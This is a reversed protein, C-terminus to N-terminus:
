KQLHGDIMITVNATGTGDSRICSITSQVSPLHLSVFQSAAYLERGHSEGQSFLVVPVIEYGGDLTVWVKQGAPVNAMCSVYDVILVRGLPVDIRESQTTVGNGISFSYKKRIIGADHSSAASSTDPSWGAPNQVHTGGTQAFCSLAIAIIPFLVISPKM